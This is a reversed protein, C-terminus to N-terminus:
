RRRARGLLSRLLDRALIQMAIQAQEDTIEGRRVQGSTYSLRAKFVRGQAPAFGCLQDVAEDLRGERVLNRVRDTDTM